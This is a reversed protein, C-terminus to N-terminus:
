KTDSACKFRPHLHPTQFGGTPLIVTLEGSGFAWSSSNHDSATRRGEDGTRRVCRQVVEGRFGRPWNEEFKMHLRRNFPISFKYLHNRDSIWPLRWAWIHYFVYFRRRWLWSLKLASDQYIANLVWSRDLKNVHHCYTSMKGKETLNAVGHM